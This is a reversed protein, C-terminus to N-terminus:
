YQKESFKAYINDPSKGYFTAKGDKDIVAAGLEGAFVKDANECVVLGDIVPPDFPYIENGFVMAQGSENVILIGRNFAAIDIAKGVDEFEKEFFDELSFCMESHFSATHDKSLIACTYRPAKGTDIEVGCIEFDEVNDRVLKLEPNEDNHLYLDGDNKLVVVLGKGLCIFKKADDCIKTFKSNDTLSVRGFSGNSLTAYVKDGYLKGENVDQLFLKPYGYGEIVPTFLLLDGNKTKITGGDPSLEIKEADGKDYMKVFRNEQFKNYRNEYQKQKEVGLIAPVRAISGRVYCNGDETVIATEDDFCFSAYSIKQTKEDLLELNFTAFKSIYLSLLGIVILATICFTIILKKM